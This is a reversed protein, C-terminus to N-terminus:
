GVPQPLAKLYKEEFSTQPKPQLSLLLATVAIGLTFIPLAFRRAQVLVDQASPLPQETRKIVSKTAARIYPALAAILACLVSGAFGVLADSVALMFM